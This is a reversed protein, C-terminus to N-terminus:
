SPFGSGEFTTMKFGRLPGNGSTTSQTPGGNDAIYFVLYRERTGDCVKDMVVGVADDMSSLMAAFIRRKEDAIGPFSYWTNRRNKFRCTNPGNFPLYLFWPKDGQNGWGISRM